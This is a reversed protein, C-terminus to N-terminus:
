MALDYFVNKMRHKADLNIKVVGWLGILDWLM